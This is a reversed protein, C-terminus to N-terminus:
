GGSYARESDRTILTESLTCRIFYHVLVSCGRSVDILVDRGTHIYPDHRGRVDVLWYGILWDIIAVTGTWDMWRLTNRTITSATQRTTLQVGQLQVILSVCTDRTTSFTIEKELQCIFKVRWTLTRKLIEERHMSMMVHFLLTSITGFAVDCRKVDCRWFSQWFQYLMNVLTKESKLYYVICTLVFILLNKRENQKLWGGMPDNLSLWKKDLVGIRVELHGRQIPRALPRGRDEEEWVQHRRHRRIRRRCGRQTRM